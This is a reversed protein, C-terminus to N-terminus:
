SRLWTFVMKLYSNLYDDLNQSKLGFDALKRYPSGPSPTAFCEISGGNSCEIVRLFPKKVLDPNGNISQLLTNQLEFSKSENMSLTPHKNFFASNLFMENMVGKSSCLIKITQGKQPYKFFLHNYTRETLHKDLASKDKRNCSFIMDTIGISNKELSNKISAVNELFIESDFFTQYWYWFRNNSSGYYFQIDGNKVREITKLANLKGDNSFTLSWTPFSGLIIKSHNLTPSDFDIRPHFERLNNSTNKM